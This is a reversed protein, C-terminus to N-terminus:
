GSVWRGAHTGTAAATGPASSTVVKLYAAELPQIKTYTEYFSPLNNLVAAQTPFPMDPLTHKSWDLVPGGGESSANGKCFAKAATQLEKPVAGSMCARGFTSSPGEARILELLQRYGSPSIIRPMVRKALGVPVGANVLALSVCLSLSCLCAPTLCMPFPCPVEFLM